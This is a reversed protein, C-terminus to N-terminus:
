DPNATDLHLDFSQLIKSPQFRVHQNRIMLAKEVDERRRRKHRALRPENGLFLQELNRDNSKRHLAAPVDDDIAVRAALRNALSDLNDLAAEVDAHKGFPM